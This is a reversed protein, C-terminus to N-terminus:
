IWAIVSTWFFFDNWCDCSTRYAILMWRLLVQWEDWRALKSLVWRIIQSSSRMAWFHWSIQPILSLLDVCTIILWYFLVSIWKRGNADSLWWTTYLACCNNQLLRRSFMIWWDLVLIFFEFRCSWGWWCWCGLFKCCTAKTDTSSGFAICFHILLIIKIQRGRMMYHCRPFVTLRHIHFSLTEIWPHCDALGM